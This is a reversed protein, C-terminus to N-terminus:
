AHPALAPLSKIYDRLIEAMSLNKSEAYTKLLQYEQENVNFQIKKERAM